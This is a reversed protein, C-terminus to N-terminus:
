TMGQACSPTPGIYFKCKLSINSYTSSIWELQAGLGLVLMEHKHKQIAADPFNVHWDYLNSPADTYLWVQKLWPESCTFLQWSM